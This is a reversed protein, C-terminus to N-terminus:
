GNIFQEVMQRYEEYTYMTNLITLVSNTGLHGPLKLHRLLTQRKEASGERGTFGDEYFDLKTIKRESQKRNESFLVKSRRFADLIVEKEVGEVGLFGEKSPKEKRREKGFIQPVYVNIIKSKDVASTIYSRIKFGAVDSDTLIVIGTKDALAQITSLLEKDKFVRFGETAIITADLFSELKIKDYKGEVIVAQKLKIM